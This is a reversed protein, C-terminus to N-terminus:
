DFPGSRRVPGPEMAVVLAYLEDLSGNWDASLTATRRYQVESMHPHLNQMAGTLYLPYWPAFSAFMADYIERSYAQTAGTFLFYHHRREEYGHAARAGAIATQIREDFSRALDRSDGMLAQLTPAADDPHAHAFEAFAVLLEDDSLRELFRLVRGRGRGTVPWPQLTAFTALLEDVSYRDLRSKPDTDDAHLASVIELHRTYALDHPSPM